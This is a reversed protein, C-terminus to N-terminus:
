AVAHRDNEVAVIWLGWATWQWLRGPTLLWTYYDFLGVASVSLLLAFCAIVQPKYIFHTRRVVFILIPLALLLIYFMAGFVGTEFAATLLTFHPPQYYTHFVPYAEKLAVASAGLGIGTLPHHLFIQNASDFLYAREILSGKEVRNEAFSNGVNFRGGLYAIDRYVFPSMALLCAFALVAVRKLADVNRKFAEVGVILLSGVFFAIWASRSFTLLLAVSAPIMTLAILWRAVEGKKYVFAALLIVLGFALCGGLMNPHDSLGYARLFRTGGAELVSVGQWLPDLKYEGLFQLGLDRQSLSQGIAVVSQILVQLGVPVVIWAPSHIENVIFLFFLFLLSLRIAHYFTLPMDWSTALSVWGAVTLGLLPVWVSARGFLIKRRQFLLSLAWCSLTVLMAIDPAFLLFDTYDGYIPPNPRDLLVIRWRIPLLLITCAFFFRASRSFFNSLRDQTLSDM